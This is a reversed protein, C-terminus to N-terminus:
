VEVIEACIQKPLLIVGQHAVLRKLACQLWVQGKEVDFAVPVCFAQFTTSYCVCIGSQAEPEAFHRYRSHVQGLQMGVGNICSSM